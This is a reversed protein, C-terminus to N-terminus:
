HIDPERHPVGTIQHYLSPLVRKYLEKAEQSQAFYDAWFTKEQWERPAMRVLELTVDIEWSPPLSEDVVEFVAADIEVASVLDDNLM